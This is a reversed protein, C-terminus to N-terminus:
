RKGAADTFATLSKVYQVAQRREQEGLYTFSPMSSGPMGRTVTNFLDEDTPLATGPTSKIKFMGANFNRPRPFLWVSAPGSGDGNVGHCAACHQLYVARGAQIKTEPAAPESSLASGPSLVISFLAALALYGILRRHVQMM